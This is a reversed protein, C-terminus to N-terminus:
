NPHSDAQQRASYRACWRMSASNTGAPTGTPRSPWSEPTPMVKPAQTIKDVVKGDPTQLVIEARLKKAEIGAALPQAFQALITADEERYYSEEEVFIGLGLSLHKQKLEASAAPGLLLRGFQSADSWNSHSGHWTSQSERNQKNDTDNLSWTFGMIRGDAPKFEPFNSWAVSAEMVYGADTLKSAVEGVTKALGKAAIVAAKDGMKPAFFCQYVGKSYQKQGFHPPSRLDIYVDIGDGMWLAGPRFHRDDAVAAAFYINKDDWMVYFQASADADGKWKPGVAIQKKSAVTTSFADKWEDLSGDIKVPKTAKVAVTHYKPAKAEGKKGDGASTQ